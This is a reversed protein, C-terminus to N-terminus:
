CNDSEGLKEFEDNIAEDRAALDEVASFFTSMPIGQEGIEMQKMKTWGDEAYFYYAKVKNIDLCCKKTNPNKMCFDNFATEDKKRLCGLKLLQNFRQLFYDSHTTIQMYAGKNICAALLDAVAIQMEPHLHAEPEEICVSQEGIFDGQMWLLLPTLEKVSSAAADLPISRGNDLVLYIGEKDTSLKGNILSHIQSVFFSDMHNPHRMADRNIEDNDRLFIDYLGLRSSSYQTSYNGSLLSARGPPFLFSRYIDKGLLVEGLLRTMDYLLAYKKYVGSILFNNNKGNLSLKATYYDSSGLKKPINNEIYEFEFKDPVDDSFLFQIQCPIDKYSLLYQFFAKIDGEMWLRLDSAKITVTIKKAKDVDETIKNTIFDNLRQSSFLNYVYYALFNVYSKGLNSKGTFLMVPALTLECDKVPGLEIIHININAM